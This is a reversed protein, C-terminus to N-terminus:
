SQSGERITAPEGYDGAWSRSRDNVAHTTQAAFAQKSIPRPNM